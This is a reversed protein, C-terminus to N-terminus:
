CNVTCWAFIMHMGSWSADVCLHLCAACGIVFTRFCAAACDVYITSTFLVHVHKPQKFLVIYSCCRYLFCSLSLFVIVLKVLM